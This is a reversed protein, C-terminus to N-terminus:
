NDLYSDKTIDFSSDKKNFLRKIYLIFKNEKKKEEFISTQPLKDLDKRASEIIITKSDKLVEPHLKLYINHIFIKFQASYKEPCCVGIILGTLLSIIFIYVLDNKLLKKLKM